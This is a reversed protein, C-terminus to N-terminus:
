VFSFNGTITVLPKINCVPGPTSIELAVINKYSRMFHQKKFYTTIAIIHFVAFFSFLKKAANLEFLRFIPSPFFELGRPSPETNFEWLLRNFINIPNYLEICRIFWGRHMKSNYALVYMIIIKGPFITKIKAQHFFAKSRGFKNVPLEATFLENKFPIRCQITLVPVFVSRNQHCAIENLSRM